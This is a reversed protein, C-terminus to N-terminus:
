EAFEEETMQRIHDGKSKPPATIEASIAKLKERLSKCRYDKSYDTGQRYLECVIDDAEDLMRLIKEKDMRGVGKLVSRRQM